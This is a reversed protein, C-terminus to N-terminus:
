SAGGGYHEDFRGSTRTNMVGSDVFSNIAPAQSEVSVTGTEAVMVVLSGNQIGGGSSKAPQVVYPHAM